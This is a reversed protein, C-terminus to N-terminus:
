QAYAAYAIGQAEHDDFSRAHHVDWPGHTAIPPHSDAALKKCLQYVAMSISIVFTVFSLQLANWTKLGLIGLALPILTIVKLLLIIFIPVFIKKLKHKKIRIKKGRGEVESESLSVDLDSAEDSLSRGDVTVPGIIPLYLTADHSRVYETIINDFSSDSRGTATNPEYDNRKVEIFDLVHFTSDLQNGKSVPTCSVVAAFALLTLCIKFFAM